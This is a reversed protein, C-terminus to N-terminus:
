VFTGTSASIKKVTYYSGALPTATGASNTIQLRWNTAANTQVEMRFQFVHNVATTLSSTAPFAATTAAQSGTVASSAIGAIAPGIGTAPSGAFHGLMRTPASSATMTWVITGATTKTFVCYATIQYVSSAELSISSNTGFFDAITPGISVPANAALRFTQEGVIAGDGSTANLQTILGGSDIRMRENATVADGNTGTRTGFVLAASPQSSQYVAGIYAVVGPGPPPDGVFVGYPDNSFFEITGVPQGVVAATDTDSIRIKSATGSSSKMTTSTVTQSVSVTYTGTTGTGTGFSIIRTVPSVTGGYITDGVAITGASVSAVTLTTNAISGVFTSTNGNTGSVHLQAAPSTTGIGVKGASDIRMRETNGIRWEHTLAGSANTTMRYDNSVFTGGNRTQVSFVDVDRALVTNDFGASGGSELFDLRPATTGLTLLGTPATSGIGVNGNAAIVLSNDPASANIVVPGATSIIEPTTIGITGDLTITM